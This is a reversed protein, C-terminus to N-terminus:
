VDSRRAARHQWYTHIGVLCLTLWATAEALGGLVDSLYHVGLYVRSLAVLLVLALAALVIM